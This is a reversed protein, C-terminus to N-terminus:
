FVKNVKSYDLPSFIGLRFEMSHKSCLSFRKRNLHIVISIFGIIRIKKSNFASILRISIVQSYIRRAYHVRSNESKLCQVIPCGKVFATELDYKRSCSIVQGVNCHKLLYFDVKLDLENRHSLISERSKLQIKQKGRSVVVDRGYVTYVWNVPKKHKHALTLICSKRLLQALSKVRGFNSAGSYWNLIGLILSNVHIVIVSDAYFNLLSNRIAKNKMLHIYGILKLKVLIEKIPATISVKRLFFEGVSFVPLEKISGVRKKKLTVDLSKKIAADVKILYNQQLRKVENAQGESL